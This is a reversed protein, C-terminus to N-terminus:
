FDDDDEDNRCTPFGMARLAGADQAIARAEDDEREAERVGRQLARAFSAAQSYDDRGLQAFAAGPPEGKLARAPRRWPYSRGCHCQCKPPRKPVM